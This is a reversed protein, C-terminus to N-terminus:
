RCAPHQRIDDMSEVRDNAYTGQICQGTSRNYWIRYRTNGSKFDDADKFGLQRMRENAPERREGALSEFEYDHVKRYGHDHQGSHHRYSTNDNRQQVGADYGRRYADSNNYNSFNHHHKGDNYGREFEEDQNRDDYHKKDDHHHSKHSAAVAGILAVAGVALAAAAADSNDDDKHHHPNQNCDTSPASTITQFRGDRTQVSLCSKLSPNWWQSYSGDGYKQTDIHVYGRSNLASDGSSARAGVLDSVNSPTVGAAVTAFAIGLLLLFGRSSISLTVTTVKKIIMSLSILYSSACTLDFSSPHRLTLDKEPLNQVFSILKAQGAIASEATSWALRFVSEQRRGAPKLAVTM